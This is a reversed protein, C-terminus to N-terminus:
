PPSWSSASTPTPSAATTSRTPPWPISARRPGRAAGRALRGHHQGHRRQARRRPRGRAARHRAVADAIAQDLREVPDDRRVPASLVDSARRVTVRRDLSDAILVHEAPVRKLEHWFTRRADALSICAVHAGLAAEDIRPPRSLGARLARLESAWLLLGDDEAYFLSRTPGADRVLVLRQGEPDWVVGAFQGALRAPAEPGGERVARALAAPGTLQAGVPIGDAAAM